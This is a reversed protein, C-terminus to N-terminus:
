IKKVLSQIFNLLLAYIRNSYKKRIEPNSVTSSFAELLLETYKDVREKTLYWSTLKDSLWDFM